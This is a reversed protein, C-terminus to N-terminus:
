RVRPRYSRIDYVIRFSSVVIGEPGIGLLGGIVPRDRDITVINLGVAASPRLPVRENPDAPEQDFDIDPSFQGFIDDYANGVMVISFGEILVAGFLALITGRTGAGISFGDRGFFRRPPYGALLEADLVPLYYPPLPNRAADAQRTIVLSGRLFIAGREPLFPILVPAPFFRYASLEFRNVNLNTGDMAMFRSVGGQVLFGRNPSALRDRTDSIAQLGLEAGYRDVGILADLLERDRPDIVELASDRAPEYGDLRDFQFRLVPQLMLISNGTPYWGVRVESEASVQDLYLKADPVSRPGVGYFALRSTTAFAGGLMGFLPRRHRDGTFYVTEVSQFRESLRGQL